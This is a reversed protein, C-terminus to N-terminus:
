HFMKWNDELSFFFVEGRKLAVQFLPGLNGQNWEIFVSTYFSLPYSNFINIFIHYWIFIDIKM